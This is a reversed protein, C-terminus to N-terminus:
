EKNLVSFVSKTVFVNWQMDQIHIHCILVKADKKDKFDQTHVAAFLGGKEHYLIASDSDSFLNFLHSWLSPFPAPRWWCRPPSWSRDLPDAAATRLQGHRIGHRLSVKSWLPPPCVAASLRTCFCETSAADSDWPFCSPIVDQSPALGPVLM